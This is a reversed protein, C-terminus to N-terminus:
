VNPSLGLWDKLLVHEQEMALYARLLQVHQPRGADLLDACVDSMMFQALAQAFRLGEQTFNMCSGDAPFRKAGGVSEVRAANEHGGAGVWIGEFTAQLEFAKLQLLEASLGLQGHSDGCLCEIVLRAQLACQPHMAVMSLISTVVCTWHGDPFLSLAALRNRRIQIHKVASCLATMVAVFSAQHMAHGHETLPRLFGVGCGCSQCFARASPFDTIFAAVAMMQESLLDSDLRWISGNLPSLWASSLCSAIPDHLPLQILRHRSM